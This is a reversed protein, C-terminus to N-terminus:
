FHLEVGSMSQCESGETWYVIVICLLQSMLLFLVKAFRHTSTIKLKDLVRSTGYIM